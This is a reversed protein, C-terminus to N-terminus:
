AGGYRETRIRAAPISEDVLARTISEVFRNAGCVYVHRPALDWRDLIERMAARDIRRAYDGARPSDGRTIALVVRVQPQTAQAAILEDRFIVEDWTRASYVLLAPVDPAVSGRHRLIAMLPAVGSGGGVLLVPGGDEARWRFHGGIPGRLEFADGPEAIDHFYPSVEGDDLREIALELLPAGPASAISYSRQVQYGDQATLRVDAHQGAEHHDLSARVFVSVVRPTQAVKREIIAAQWQLPATPAAAVDTM